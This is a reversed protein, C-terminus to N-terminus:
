APESELSVNIHAAKAAGAPIWEFEYSGNIEEKVPTGPQDAKAIVAVSVM